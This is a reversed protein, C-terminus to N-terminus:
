RLGAMQSVQLSLLLFAIAVVWSGAIRLVLPWRPAIWQSLATVNLVVLGAGVFLGARPAWGAGAPMDTDAGIACGLALLLVPVVGPIARGWLLLTGLLLMVALLVPPATMPGLGIGLGVALGCALALVGLAPNDTGRGLALGAAILALLHETAYLPHLAGAGFGAGGPLTGHAAAPGALLLAFLFAALIM